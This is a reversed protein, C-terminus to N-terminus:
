GARAPGAWIVPGQRRGRRGGRRRGGSEGCPMQVGASPRTAKEARSSSDSAAGCRWAAAAAAPVNAVAATSAAAAAWSRPPARPPPKPDSTSTPSSITSSPRSALFKPPDSHTLHSWHDLIDIADGREYLFLEGGLLPTVIARHMSTNSDFVNKECKAKPVDYADLDSERRSMVPATQTASACELDRFLSPYSQPIM